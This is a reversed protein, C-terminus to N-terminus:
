PSARPPQPSGLPSVFLPSRAESGPTAASLVPSRQESRGGGSQVPTRTPTSSTSAETPTDITSSYAPHHEHIFTSGPLEQPIGPKGHSVVRRAQHDYAPPSSTPFIPWSATTTNPKPSGSGAEPSDLEHTTPARSMQITPEELPFTTGAHSTTTTM